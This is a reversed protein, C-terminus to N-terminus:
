FELYSKLTIIYILPNTYTYTTYYLYFYFNYTIGRVGYHFLKKLQIKNDVSDLAKTLDIFVGLTYCNNEFSKLIEDVLLSIVHDTTNQKQFGLQKKNLINNESFFCYLRNYIRREM